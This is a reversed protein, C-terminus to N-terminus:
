LGAVLSTVPSTNLGTTGEVDSLVPDLLNTTIVHPLLPDTPAAQPTATHFRHAIGTSAAAILAGILLAATATAAAITWPILKSPINRM